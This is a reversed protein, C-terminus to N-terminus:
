VFHKVHKTSLVRNNIAFQAVEKARVLEDSLDYSHTVKRTLLVRNEENVKV